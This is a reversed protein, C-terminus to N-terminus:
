ITNSKMQRHGADSTVNTDTPEWAHPGAANLDAMLCSWIREWQNVVNPSDGFAGLMAMTRWMWRVSTSRLVILCRRCEGGSRRHRMAALSLIPLKIRHARSGM